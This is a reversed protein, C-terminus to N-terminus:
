FSNVKTNVLQYLEESEWGNKTKIWQEKSGVMKFGHKTFLAKSKLNNELINCYVNKLLLVEFCYNIILELAESAFRKNRKEPSIIIGIGVRKHQPDFDFLDITGLPSHALDCIIFRVQKTAYIDHSSAIYAKLIDKSYPVLTHSVLWNEIDNELAYIFQLDEPEPTRLYIHKGKLM